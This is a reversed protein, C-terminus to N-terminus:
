PYIFSFQEAFLQFCSYTAFLTGEKSLMNDYLELCIKTKFQETEISTSYESNLENFYTLIVNHRLMFYEMFLM